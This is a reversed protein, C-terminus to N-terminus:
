LLAHTSCSAELARAAALKPENNVKIYTNATTKIDSHGLMDRIVNIDVGATQLWSAYTHRLKHFTIGSDGLGHMNLFRSFSRRLAQYSRLEGFQNPFVLNQNGKERIVKKLWSNAEIYHKWENLARFVIEPVAVDRVSCVTKTDGIEYHKNILSGSEDEDFEVGLSNEVHILGNIEDVDSWHLALVEGIRLGSFLMLIIMPRFTPSSDAAVLLKQVISDSIFRERPYVKRGRPIRTISAYPDSSIYKERVALQFVNKLLCNVTIILQNSRQKGNDMSLKRLFSIIENATVDEVFRDSFYATIHKSIRCYWDYSSLKRCSRKKDDLVLKLLDSILHKEGTFIQGTTGIPQGGILLSLSSLPIRTKNGVSIVHLREESIMQEIDAAEVDLEEAAEEITLASRSYKRMLLTETTQINDFNYNM